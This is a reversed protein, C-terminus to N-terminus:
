REEREERLLLQDARDSVRVRVRVLLLQYVRDSAEAREHGGILVLLFVLQRL